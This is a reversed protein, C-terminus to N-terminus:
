GAVAGGSYTGEYEASEIRGVDQTLEVVHSLTLRVAYSREYTDAILASTDVPATVDLVGFNLEEGLRLSAELSLRVTFYNALDIATEGVFRIQVIMTKQSGVNQIGDEDIMQENSTGFPANTLVQWTAYPKHSKTLDEHAERFSKVVGVSPFLFDYIKSDLENM